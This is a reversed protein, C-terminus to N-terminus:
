LDKNWVTNSRVESRTLSSFVSLSILLTVSSIKLYVDEECWSGLCCMKRLVNWIEFVQWSAKSQLASPLNANTDCRTDRCGESYKKSEDSTPM